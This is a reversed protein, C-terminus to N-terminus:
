AASITRTSMRLCPAVTTAAGPSSGALVGPTSRLTIWGRANAAQLYGELKAYFSDRTAYDQMLMYPQVGLVNGRGEDSGLEIFEDLHLDTM